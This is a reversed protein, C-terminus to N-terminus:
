KMLRFCCYAIKNCMPVCSDDQSTAMIKNSFSCMISKSNANCNKADGLLYMKLKGMVSFILFAVAALLLIYEVTTQGSNKPKKLKM